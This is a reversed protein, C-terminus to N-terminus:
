HKQNINKGGQPSVIELASISCSEVRFLIEMKQWTGTLGIVDKSLLMKRNQTFNM